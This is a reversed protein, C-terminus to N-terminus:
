APTVEAFRQAGDEAKGSGPCTKIALGPKVGFIVACGEDDHALGALAGPRIKKAIVAPPSKM